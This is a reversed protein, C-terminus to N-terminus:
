KEGVSLPETTKPSAKADAGRSPLRETKLVEVKWAVIESEKRDAFFAHVDRRKVRGHLVRPSDPDFRRAFWVAKDYDTTWSLGVGGRYGVGRWVNFSSPMKELKGREKPGMCEHKKPIPASWIRKWDARHQRINESDTWVEGVLHWYQAPSLRNAIQLLAKCRYPRAHLFVYKSGDGIQTELEALRAKKYLYDANIHAARDPDVGLSVVLEHQLVRDPHLYPMLEPLLPEQRYFLEEQRAFLEEQSLKAGKEDTM